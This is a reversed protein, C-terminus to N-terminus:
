KKNTELNKDEEIINYYDDVLPANKIEYIIGIWALVFGSAAIIILGVM